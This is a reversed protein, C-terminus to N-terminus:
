WLGWKYKNDKVANVTKMATFEELGWRGLERGIGSQKTGGWPLQIFAPQCNNVWVTGVRLGNTVRACRELDASFVAGALGYVSDNALTLAEEETEFERVCLVPGFIEEKWVRADTPVDVYVTPPIFFGNPDQSSVMSREGGYLRAISKDANAEDIFEWIKDYQIKSIVPGMMPTEFKDDACFAPDSMNGIPLTKLKEVVKSLVEERISKHLFVRSTASCVQGTGWCFGTIIWDVLAEIDSDEFAILPSKGGLELSIGRPGEAVATMIRRATPVSGTFSLKDVGPHASLAAGAVPGLGPVVNYAGDPLGAKKLMEGMVLCTLPALESPKLVMTCGAAICPILKWAAMLLPFNWPTIAGIIGIPEHRVTCLFDGDGVDIVEGQEKDQKEALDAFHNCASVADGFDAEAERRAKGNDACEIEVLRATSAGLIEGFRRLIVARQAGTSKFGWGDSFLCAKAAAVARDVDAAGAAAVDTLRLGTAPSIVEFTAGDVADVFEGGIFLQTPVSDM